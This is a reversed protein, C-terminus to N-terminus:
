IQAKYTVGSTEITIASSPKQTIDPTDIHPPWYWGNSHKQTLTAWHTVSSRQFMFCRRYSTPLCDYLQYNANKNIFLLTTYKKNQKIPTNYNTSLWLQTSITVEHLHTIEVFYEFYKLTTEFSRRLLRYRNTRRHCGYRMLFYLYFSWVKATSNLSQSIYRHNPPITPSQQPPRVYSLSTPLTIILLYVFLCAACHWLNSCYNVYQMSTYHMEFKTTDLLLFFFM